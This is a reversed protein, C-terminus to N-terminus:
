ANHVRVKERLIDYYFCVSEGHKDNVITGGPLFPFDKLEVQSLDFNIKIEQFVKDKM